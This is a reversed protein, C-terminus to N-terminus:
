LVCCYSNQLIRIMQKWSDCLDKWFEVFKRFQHCSLLSLVYRLVFRLYITSVDPQIAKFVPSDLLTIQSQLSISVFPLCIQTLLFSCCDHGQLNLIEFM